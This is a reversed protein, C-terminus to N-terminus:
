AQHIANASLAQKYGPRNGCEAQSVENIGVCQTANTSDQLMNGTSATTICVAIEKCLQAAGQYRLNHGCNLRLM